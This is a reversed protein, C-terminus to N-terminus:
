LPTKDPISISQIGKIPNGALDFTSEEVIISKETIDKIVGNNKGIKLGPQLIYNKGDPASVMARPAGKGLLIAQIRFQGLDFKELPTKPVSSARTQKGEKLLSEFPDRKGIPSYVFVDKQEETKREKKQTETKVPRVKQPAVTPVKSVPEEGCGFLLLLLCIVMLRFLVTMMDGKM